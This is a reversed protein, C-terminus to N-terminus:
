IAVRTSCLVVAQDALADAVMRAHVTLVSSAVKMTTVLVSHISSVMKTMTIVPVIHVSVMIIDVMAKISALVTLVNVVMMTIAHVTLVSSAVMTVISVLATLVNVVMMATSVLATLANNAVKMVTSVLVTLVIAEMTTVERRVIPTTQMQISVHDTLGTMPLFENHDLKVTSDRLNIGKPMAMVRPM